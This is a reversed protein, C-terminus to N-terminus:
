KGVTTHIGLGAIRKKREFIERPTLGENTRYPERAVTRTESIIGELKNRKKSDSLNQYQPSRIAELISQKAQPGSNKILDYYQKPTLKEKGVNKSSKGPFYGLRSLESEVEDEKATSVQVPSVARWIDGGIGKTIGEKKIEEGWIDQRAPLTKSVGPIRYKIADLIGHVERLNPDITRSAWNMLGTAPVASGALQEIWNEGYRTPDTIVNVVNSIGQLFTKSSLNRGISMAIKDFVYNKEDEDMNQTLETFDAALGLITGFPELRFYSYYKDGIKVSYPQWGTRYLAERKNKETPGSGTILNQKALQYVALQIGTGVM